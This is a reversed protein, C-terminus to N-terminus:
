RQKRNDGDRENACVEKVDSEESSPKHSQLWFAKHGHKIKWM